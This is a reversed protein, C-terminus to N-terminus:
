GRRPPKPAGPPTPATPTLVRDIAQEIMRAVEDPPVGDRTAIDLLADAVRELGRKMDREAVARAHCELLADLTERRTARQLGPLKKQEADLQKLLEAATM